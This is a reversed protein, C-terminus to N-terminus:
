LHTRFGTGGDTMVELLLVANGCMNVDSKTMRWRIVVIGKYRVRFELLLSRPTPLKYQRSPYQPFDIKTQNRNCHDHYTQSDSYHRGSISLM